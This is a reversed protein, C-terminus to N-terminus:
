GRERLFDVIYEMKMSRSGKVLVVDGPKLIKDLYLAAEEKTSFAYVSGSDMGSAVAGRKVAGSFNGSAILVDVGTAAAYGGIDYHEKESTDGLELMDAFICVARNGSKMSQLVNMAARMSEPNANYADNIIKIGKPTNIIDMRMKSPKFSLLGNRIEEAEMCFLKAVAIASLANYVNHTGPLLVRFSEEKGDLVVKFTIGEEGKEVIDYARFDNGEELGYRVIGYDKSSLSALMDNDGNIVATNDSSFYSFIELKAKLINERSGLKEIHATGVNSILGIDQRVIDSLLRIEGPSNMGMELVAIEHNYQLKLLTMPLGIANNLNGETKLVRYRQSLVSAVMDKTTTKGSSGTIAVFPIRFKNRYYRAIDQLAKLTDEVLIYPVRCEELVKSSVVLAAGKEIAADIFDHGDFNEGRLAVFMDGPKIRRSDICVEEIKLEEVPNVLRGGSAEAIEGVTLMEM